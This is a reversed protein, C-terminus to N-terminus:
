QISNFFVHSAILKERAIMRPEYRLAHARFIVNRVRIENRLEPWSRNECRSADTSNDASPRKVERNPIPFPPVM